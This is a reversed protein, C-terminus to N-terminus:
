SRRAKPVGAKRADVWRGDKKGDKKEAKGAAVAEDACSRTVNYEGGAKYDITFGPQRWSFDATFRVWM